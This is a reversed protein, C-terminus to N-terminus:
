RQLIGPMGPLLFSALTRFCIHSPFLLERPFGLFGLFGQSKESPIQKIKQVLKSWVQETGTSLLPYSGGSRRLTAGDLAQPNTPFKTPPGQAYLSTSELETSGQVRGAETYSHRREEHFLNKDDLAKRVGQTTGQALSMCSPLGKGATINPSM